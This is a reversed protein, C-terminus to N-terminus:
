VRANEILYELQKEKMSETLFGESYIIDEITKISLHTAPQREPSLIWCTGTLKGYRKLESYLWMRDERSLDYVLPSYDKKKPPAPFM